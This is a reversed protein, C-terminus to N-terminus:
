SCYLYIFRILYNDDPVIEFIFIILGKLDENVRLDDLQLTLEFFIILATQAYGVDIALNGTVILYPDPRQVFVTFLYANFGGTKQCPDELVFDVVSVTNHKNVM